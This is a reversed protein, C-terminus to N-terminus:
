VYKNGEKEQSSTEPEATDHAEPTEETFVAELDRIVRKFIANVKATRQRMHAKVSKDDVNSEDVSFRKAIEKVESTAKVVEPKFSTDFAECKALREKLVNTMDKAM